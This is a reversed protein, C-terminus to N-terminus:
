NALNEIQSLFGNLSEENLNFSYVYDKMSKFLEDKTGFTINKFGWENLFLSNVKVLSTLDVPESFHKAINDTCDNLPDVATVVIAGDYNRWKMQGIVSDNFMNKLIRIEVLEYGNEEVIRTNVKSFIDEGIKQIESFVGVKIENDDKQYLAVCSENINTDM